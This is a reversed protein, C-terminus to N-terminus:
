SEDDDGFQSIIKKVFDKPTITFETNALAHTQEKLMKSMTNAQEIDLFAENPHCVNQYIKQQSELKDMYASTLPDVILPRDAQTQEALKRYKIRTSRRVKEPCKRSWKDKNPRQYQIKRRKKNQASHPELEPIQSQSPKHNRNRNNNRNSNRNHNSSSTEESSESGSESGSEYEGSSSAGSGSEDDESSEPKRRKRGSIQSNAGNMNSNGM